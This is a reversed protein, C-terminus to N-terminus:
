DFTGDQVWFFIIPHKKEIELLDAFKDKHKRLFKFMAGHYFGAAGCHGCTDNSEVMEYPIDLEVSPVENYWGNLFTNSYGKIYHQIIDESGKTAFKPYIYHNLFNQDSGKQTFDMGGALNMMDNWNYGVKIGWHDTKIGILGGLLPVDHSVSDTIAHLGKERMEWFKVMQAERYTSPSDLDRCLVHTYKNNGDEGVFAPKLRWLMAKCLPAEDNITIDIDLSDFLEKYAEYTNKDTNLVNRWEPYILRNMRLNIMLGRLYTNFDFSAHHREKNYGFLSYSIAKM